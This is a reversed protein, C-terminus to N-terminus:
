WSKNTQTVYKTEISSTYTHMLIIQVSRCLIYLEGTKVIIVSLKTRNETAM